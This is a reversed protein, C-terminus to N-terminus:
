RPPLESFYSVRRMAEPESGITGGMSPKFSAPTFEKRDKMYISGCQPHVTTFLDFIYYGIGFYAVIALLLIGGGAWCVWRWRKSGSARGPTKMTAVKM